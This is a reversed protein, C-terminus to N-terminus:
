GVHLHYTASYHEGDTFFVEAEIVHDGPRLPHLYVINARLTTRVVGPDVGIIANYFSGAEAIVDYPSTDIPKLPLAIGDLTLSNTKTEFFEEVIAQLEADTQGTDAFAFQGAHSLVIPTGVPIDCDFEFNLGIPAALIFAGDVIGGCAGETGAILPNSSDGLYFQGLTRLWSQYSQGHPRSQYPLVASAHSPTASGVFMVAIASTLLVLKWRM